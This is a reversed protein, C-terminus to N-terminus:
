DTTVDIPLVPNFFVNLRSVETSNIEAQGYLHGDLLQTGTRATQAWDM